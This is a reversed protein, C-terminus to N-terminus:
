KFSHQDTPFDQKKVDQSYSRLANSVWSYGDAYQKLFKPKFEPNFGLLDYLVLVQGSCHVGAGIGITPVESIDTITKALESPVLELVLLDIGATVLLKAEDMLRQAQDETRGQVRPRDISQPTYGIHGCVSIGEAVLAKVVDEVPGEVKVMVAGADILLRANKLAVEASDYSGKPMDGVLKPYNKTQSNQFGKSVASLHHTIQAMSVNVTSNDGSIVMGLSDGVLVYDISETEACIRAFTADYCTVMVLKHESM